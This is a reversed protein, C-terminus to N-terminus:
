NQLLIFFIYVPSFHFYSSKVAAIESLIYHKRLDIMYLFLFMDLM